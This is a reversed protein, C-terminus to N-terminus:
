GGSAPDESDPAITSVVLRRTGRRLLGGAAPQSIGLETAVEDLTAARPEEFYGMELALLLAERQSETLSTESEVHAAHDSVRELSFEIGHDTAFEWLTALGRRNPLWVRVTWATGDNVWDLSIGDVDAIAGSFVTATESYEFRYVADAGLEVVREFAAITHDRELGAEFREFDDARVTFLHAGLNPATGAGSVPRVTASEDYAVTETLPLDPSEVRLTATVDSVNADLDGVPLFGDSVAGSRDSAVRVAGVVGAPVSVM